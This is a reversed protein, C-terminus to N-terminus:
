ERARFILRKAVAAGDHALFFEPEMETAAFAQRLSALKSEADQEGSGVNIIVAVRSSM